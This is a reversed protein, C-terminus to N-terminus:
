AAARLVKTAGILQDLEKKAAERRADLYAALDEIHVGKACKQTAEIRVLPLQIEGSSCKRVFRDPTLHPFYDECVKEVHIIPLGDYRAALLFATKM